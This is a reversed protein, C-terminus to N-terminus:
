PKQTESPTTGHLNGHMESHPGQLYQVLKKKQDDSLIERLQKDAKLRLPRVNDLLQEHSLTEDQMLKETTDHLEQLVTKVKPRQDVTLELKQTLVKLQEEVKPLDQAGAKASGGPQAPQQAPLAPAILLMSGIALLRVRNM